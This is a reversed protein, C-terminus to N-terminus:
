DYQIFGHQAAYKILGALDHVGLKEMIRSRYTDVTKPSLHLASAIEASTKGAVVLHFVQRERESLREMPTRMEGTDAMALYDDLIKHTISSSLYREGQMVARVAQVVENGASEKLLYGYAGCQLARLIHDRTAHMSLIIVRVNKIQENILRAAEIGDLGPMAIDMIVIDPSLRRCEQVAEVGDGAVGVVQIDGQSELLLRLGDRVVVHDDALLVRISM